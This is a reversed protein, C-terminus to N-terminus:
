PPTVVSGALQQEGIVAESARNDLAVRCSQRLPARPKLNWNPRASLGCKENKQLLINTLDNFFMGSESDEKGQIIKGWTCLKEGHAHKNTVTTAYTAHCGSVVPM